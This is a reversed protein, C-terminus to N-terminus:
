DAAAAAALAARMSRRATALAAPNVSASTRSRTLDPFGPLALPGEEERASRALLPDVEFPPSERRSREPLPSFPPSNLRDPGLEKM